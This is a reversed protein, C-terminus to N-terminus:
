AATRPTLDPVTVRRRAARERFRANKKVIGLGRGKM